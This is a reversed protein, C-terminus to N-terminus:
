KIAEVPAAGTTGSAQKSRRTHPLRGIPRVGTGTVGTRHDGLERRAADAFGDLRKVVDPHHAAVSKQEAVDAELNYLAQPVKADPQDLKAYPLEDQLTTPLKLKWKGSRVANLTGKSYFLLM